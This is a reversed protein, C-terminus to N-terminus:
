SRGEFLQPLDIRAAPHIRDWEIDGSVSLLGCWDPIPEDPDLVAVRPRKANCDSSGWWPVGTLMARVGTHLVSLHGALEDPIDQDFVLDGDEVSPSYPRVLSFLDRATAITAITTM